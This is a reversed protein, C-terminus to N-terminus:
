SWKKNFTVESPVNGAANLMTRCTAQDTLVDSVTAPLPLPLPKWKIKKPLMKLIQVPLYVAFTFAFSCYCCFRIRCECFPFKHMNLLLMCYITSGTQCDPLRALCHRWSCGPALIFLANRVCLHETFYSCCTLSHLFRVVNKGAFLKARAYFFISYFQRSRFHAYTHAHDVAGNDLMWLRESLQASILSKLIGLTHLTHRSQKWAQAVFPTCLMLHPSFISPPFICDSTYSPWNMVWQSIHFVSWIIIPNFIKNSIAIRWSINKYWPWAVLKKCGKLSLGYFYKHLCKIFQSRCIAGTNVM